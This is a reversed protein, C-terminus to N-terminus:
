KDTPKVRWMGVQYDMPIRAWHETFYGSMLIKDNLPFYSAVLYNCDNSTNYEVKEIQFEKM